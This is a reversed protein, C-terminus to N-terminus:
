WDTRSSSHNWLSKKRNRISFAWWFACCEGWTLEFDREYLLTQLAPRFPQHLYVSCVRELCSIFLLVVCTMSSLGCICICICFVTWFSYVLWGSLFLMLIFQGSRCHLLHCSKAVLTLAPLEEVTRIFLQFCFYLCTLPIASWYASRQYTNGPFSTFTHFFWFYRWNGKWEKLALHVYLM